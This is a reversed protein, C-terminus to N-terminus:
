LDRVDGVSADLLNQFGEGIGPVEVAVPPLPRLPIGIGDGPFCFLDGKAYGEARRGIAL